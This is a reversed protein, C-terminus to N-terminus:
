LCIFGESKLKDLAILVKHQYNFRREMLAANEKTDSGKELM